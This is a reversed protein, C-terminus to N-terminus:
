ELGWRASRKNQISQRILSVDISICDIYTLINHRKGTQCESNCVNNKIAREGDIM